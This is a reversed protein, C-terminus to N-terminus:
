SGFEARLNIDQALNLSYFCPSNQIQAILILQRTNTALTKIVLSLSTRQPQYVKM